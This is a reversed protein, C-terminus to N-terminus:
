FYSDIINECMDKNEGLYPLMRPYVHEDWFKAIPELIKVVDGQYNGEAIIQPYRVIFEDDEDDEDYDQTYSILLYLLSNITSKIEDTVQITQESYFPNLSCTEVNHQPYVEAGAIILLDIVEGSEQIDIAANGEANRFNLDFDENNFLFTSVDDAYTISYNCLHDPPMVYGLEKIKTPKGDEVSLIEDMYSSSGLWEYQQYLSLDNNKIFELLKELNAESVYAPFLLFALEEAVKYTSSNLNIKTEQSFHNNFYEYINKLTERIARHYIIQLEKDNKGYPASRNDFIQDMLKHTLEHVTFNLPFDEDLFLINLGPIYMGGTSGLFLPNENSIFIKFPNKELSECATTAKLITYLIEDKSSEILMSSLRNYLSANRTYVKSMFYNKLSIQNNTFDFCKPLLPNSDINNYFDNYLDISINEEILSVLFYFEINNKVLSNFYEIPFLDSFIDKFVIDPYEDDYEIIQESDEEDTLAQYKLYDRTKLAMFLSIYYNKALFEIQEFLKLKFEAFEDSNILEQLFDNPNRDLFIDNYNVGPFEDPHIKKEEDSLLYLKAYKKADRAKIAYYSSIYYNDCSM